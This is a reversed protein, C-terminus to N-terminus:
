TSPKEKTRFSWTPSIGVRNGNYNATVFWFYATDYELKGVYTSADELDEGLNIRVTSNAKYIYVSYTLKVNANSNTVKWTLNLLTDLGLAGNGPSPTNLEVMKVVTLDVMLVMQLYTTQNENVHVSVASTTYNDKAGTISVDGAQVKSIVFQGLSDTICSISAPDTTLNVGGLPKSTRADVVRGTITGYISTSDIVTDECSAVIMMIFVGILSYIALRKM